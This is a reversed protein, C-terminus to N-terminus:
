WSWGKLFFILVGRCTFIKFNRGAYNSQYDNWGGWKCWGTFYSPYLNLNLWASIPWQNTLYLNCSDPHKNTVTMTMQGFYSCFQWTDIKM